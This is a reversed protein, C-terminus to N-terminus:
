TFRKWSRCIKRRSKPTFASRSFEPCVRTRIPGDSICRPVDTRAVIRPGKGIWIGFDGIWPSHMPNRIAANGAAGGNGAKADGGNQEPTSVCGVAALLM